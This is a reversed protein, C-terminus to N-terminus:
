YRIRPDAVAYLVDAVLNALLIMISTLLLIAMLVFYDSTGLSEIFLRGMGPWVFITEAVIAGTVLFPLELGVNTIIPLLANRFAHRGFVTRPKVGKAKATRVYDQSLTDLMSARVFRSDGAINVAVLTIVPLVLHRGIEGVGGLPNATFATWYQSTGFPPWDRASVIGGTPLLHLFPGFLFILMLGLWFTPLSYFIYALFTSTQDFLSYQKVAAVVGIVIALSVWVVLAIGALLITAPLREAIVDTVTRGNTISRGFDGHLIGNTGGGLAAPLVNLGGQDSFFADLGERNCNLVGSWGGFETVIAGVSKDAELCWSKLWTDIQQQNLKKNERLAQAPGGPALQMLFFSIITVAILLPILGLLRRVIFRFM